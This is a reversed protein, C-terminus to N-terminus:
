IDCKDGYNAPFEVNRRGDVLYEILNIACDQAIITPYGYKQGVYRGNVGRILVPCIQAKKILIKKGKYYTFAGPYPEDLGRIQNIIEEGTKNWNILGDEPYRRTWICVTGEPQPNIPPPLGLSYQKIVEPVLEAFISNVKETIDKATDTKDISYKKSAIVPGDDIGTTMQLVYAEGEKEGNIIQWPIPSAGRYYPLKGGHCNLTNLAPLNIIKQPLIKDYGICIILDPNTKKIELLHDEKKPNDCHIFKINAKDLLDEFKKDNISLVVLSPILQQKILSQIVSFGREGKAYVIFKMKM